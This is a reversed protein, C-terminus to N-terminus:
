GKLRTVKLFHLGSMTTGFHEYNMELVSMNFELNRMTLELVSM